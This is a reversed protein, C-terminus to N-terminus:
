DPSTIPRVAIDGIPRSVDPDETALGLPGSLRPVTEHLAQGSRPGQQSQNGAAPNMSSFSAAPPVPDVPAPPRRPTTDNPASTSGPGDANEEVASTSSTAVPDSSSRISTGAAEDVRRAGPREQGSVPSVESEGVTGGLAHEVEATEAPHPWGSAQTSPRAHEGDALAVAVLDAPSRDRQPVIPEDASETAALEEAVQRAVTDNSDVDQSQNPNETSPHIEVDTSRAPSTMESVLTATDTPGSSQEPASTEGAASSTTTYGEFSEELTSASASKGFTDCCSQEGLWHTGLWAGAVLGVFLILRWVIASAVSRVRASRPRTM